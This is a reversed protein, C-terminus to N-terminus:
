DTGVVEAEADVARLPTLKAPTLKAAPLKVPESAARASGAVEAAAAAPAAVRNSAGSQVSASAAADAKDGTVASALRLEKTIEMPATPAPASTFTALNTARHSEASATYVRGADRGVRYFVHLGVEATRVLRPGWNPAVNVTHFHTADGVSSMVGGSLAKSAVRQARNWAVTERGRRMSGDCAFSFQCGVRKGAGQFVVACVTKPFAPHRVRNLVVQAVAAQGAPTEGRAEFYVAQTLCELERSTELAGSLHFPAAAPLSVGRLPIRSGSPQQTNELRTLLVADQRDRDVSGSSVFPDHRRAVRLVGPDLAAAERELVTDSYAGAAAGALRSARAHDTAARSMGGAMYAAGLALGIGSGILVACTPARWDAHAKIDFTLSLQGTHRPRNRGGVDDDRAGRSM